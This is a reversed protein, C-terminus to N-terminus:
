YRMIGLPGAFRLSGFDDLSGCHDSTISGGGCPFPQNQRRILREAIRGGIADRRRPLLGGDFRQLVTRRWHLQGEGLLPQPKQRLQRARALRIVHRQRQPQAARQVPRREGAGEVRQRGPVLHQAGPEDGRRARGKLHDIRGVVTEGQARMIQGTEGVGLLPERLQHALLRGIREVQGPGRGRAPPQDRQAGVMVYQRQRQM